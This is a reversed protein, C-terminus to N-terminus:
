GRTVAAGAAMLRIVIVTRTLERRAAGAAGHRAQSRVRGSREAAAVDGVAPEREPVAGCTCHSLARQVPPMCSLLRSWAREWQGRLLEKRVQSNRPVAAAAAAAAAGRAVALFLAHLAVQEEVGVVTFRHRRIGMKRQGLTAKALLSCRVPRSSHRSNNHAGDRTRLRLRLRQLNHGVQGQLLLLLLTLPV